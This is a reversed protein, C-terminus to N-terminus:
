TWVKKVYLFEILMWSTSVETAEDCWDLVKQM